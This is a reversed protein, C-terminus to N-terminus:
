DKKKTNQLKKQIEHTATKTDNRSVIASINKVCVSTGGTAGTM